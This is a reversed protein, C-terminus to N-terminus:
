PRRRAVVATGDAGPAPRRGLRSTVDRGYLALVQAVDLVIALACVLTSVVWGPLTGTFAPMQLPRPPKAERRIGKVAPM